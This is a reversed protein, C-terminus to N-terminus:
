NPLTRSEWATVWATGDPSLPKVETNPIPVPTVGESCGGLIAVIAFRRRFFGPVTLGRVVLANSVQWKGKRAQSLGRNKRPKASRQCSFVSPCVLLRPIVRGAPRVLRGQM